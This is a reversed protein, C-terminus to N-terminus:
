APMIVATQTDTEDAGTGKLNLTVTAAALMLLSTVAFSWLGIRWWRRAARETTSEGCCLTAVMCLLGALVAAAVLRMAGDTIPADIYAFWAFGAGLVALDLRLLARAARQRKKRPGATVAIQTENM